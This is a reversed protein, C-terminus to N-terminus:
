GPPRTKSADRVSRWWAKAELAREVALRMARGDVVVPSEVGDMNPLWVVRVYSKSIAAVFYAAEVGGPEQWSVLRGVSLGPGLSRDFQDIEDLLDKRAKGRSGFDWQSEIAQMRRVFDIVKALGEQETYNHKM